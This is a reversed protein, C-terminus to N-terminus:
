GFRFGSGSTTVPTRSSTTQNKQVTGMMIRQPLAGGWFPAGVSSCVSCKMMGLELGLDDHLRDTTGVRELLDGSIM